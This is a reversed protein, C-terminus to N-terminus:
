SEDRRHMIGYQERLLQGVVGKLTCSEVSQRYMWESVGHETLIVVSPLKLVTHGQSTALEPDESIDTAETPM